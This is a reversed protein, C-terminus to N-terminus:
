NQSLKPWFQAFNGYNQQAKLQQMVKFAERLEISKNEWNM